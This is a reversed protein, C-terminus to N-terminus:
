GKNKEKEAESFIEDIKARAESLKRAEILDIVPRLTTKEDGAGHFSYAIPLLVIRASPGDGEILLERALLMRYDRDSAATGFTQKLGAVADKPPAEGAKTFSRYYLIYPRPDQPDLRTAKILIPRAAAFGAKDGNEGQGIAISAKQILAETSDPDLTLARDAAANAEAFRRADCFAEAAEIQVFLSDTYRRADDEIDNAVDRAEHRDVGRQSRMREGIVATEAESLARLQVTPPTYGAPRVDFGPFKGSRAVHKYARVERALKDLDGFAARAATLGDEGRGLAKLYTLLQGRRTPEFTLYHLLLWGYGYFQIHDIARRKANQDFLKDLPIDPLQAIQASRYQPPNGVHFSGDEDFTITANFEAFAEVYWDPYTAPFTQLMFHHTYEHQLVSRPDLDTRRDRTWSGIAGARVGDRRAPTFAVAGGARPIYFGAIGSEPAGALYAIDDTDGTRFITVKNADSLPEPPRVPRGQLTRLANDFRELETAFARTDSEDDESYIIFHATEARWWDAAHAATPASLALALLLTRFM